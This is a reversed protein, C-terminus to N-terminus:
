PTGRPRHTTIRSLSTTPRIAARRLPSHRLSAARVHTLPVAVLELRPFLKTSRPTLNAQVKRFEVTAGFM